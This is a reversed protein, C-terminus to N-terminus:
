PIVTGPPSWALESIYRGGTTAKTADTTVKTPTGGTAPVTWVDLSGLSTYALLGNAGWAPRADDVFAGTLLTAVKRADGARSLPVLAGVVAPRAKDGCAQLRDVNATYGGWCVSMYILTHLPLTSFLNELLPMPRNKEGMGLWTGTGEIGHTCIVVMYIDTPAKAM